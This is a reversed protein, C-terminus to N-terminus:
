VFGDSWFQQSLYDVRVKYERAPLGGFAEDGEGKDKSDLPIRFEELFGGRKHWSKCLRHNQSQGSYNKVIEPLHPM